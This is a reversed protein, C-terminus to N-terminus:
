EWFTFLSLVLLVILLGYFIPNTLINDYLFQSTPWVTDVIQNFYYWTEFLDAQWITSWLDIATQWDIIM